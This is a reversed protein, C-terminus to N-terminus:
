QVDVAPALWAPIPRGRGAMLSLTMNLLGDELSKAGDGVDTSSAQELLGRRAKEIKRVTEESVAVATDFKRLSPEGLTALAALGFFTHYVDPPSGAHKGFGGIMHQTKELMFRRAEQRKILDLRGLNALSAATWFCYCTDAPKNWRGNFGIHQADM